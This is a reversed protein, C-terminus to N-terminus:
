GLAEKNKEYSQCLGIAASAVAMVTEVTNPLVKM